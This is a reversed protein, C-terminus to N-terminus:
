PATRLITRSDIIPAIEGTVESGIFYNVIVLDDVGDRHQKFLHM